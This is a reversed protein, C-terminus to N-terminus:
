SSDYILVRTEEAVKTGQVKILVANIFYIIFFYQGDKMLPDNIKWYELMLSDGSKQLPCFSAYIYPTM